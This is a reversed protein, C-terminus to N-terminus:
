KYLVKYLSCNTYPRLMKINLKELKDGTLRTINFDSTEIGGRFLSIFTSVFCYFRAYINYQVM